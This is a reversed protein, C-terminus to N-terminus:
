DSQDKNALFQSEDTYHPKHFSTAGYGSHTASTIFEGNGFGFAQHDPAPKRFNDFHLFNAAALQPSSASKVGYWVVLITAFSRFFTKAGNQTRLYGLIRSHPPKNIAQFSSSAPLGM